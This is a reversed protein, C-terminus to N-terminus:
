AAPAYDDANDGATDGGSDGGEREPPVVAPPEAAAAGRPQGAVTAGALTRLAGLAKADPACAGNEEELLRLLTSAHEGQKAKVVALAAVRHLRLM